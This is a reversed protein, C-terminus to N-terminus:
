GVHQRAILLIVTKTLKCLVEALCDSPTVTGKHSCQLTGLIDLSGLESFVYCKQGSRHLCLTPLRYGHKRTARHEKLRWEQVAINGM